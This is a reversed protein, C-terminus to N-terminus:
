LWRHFLLFFLYIFIPLQVVNKVATVTVCVFGWVCVHKWAWESVGDIFKLKLKWDTNYQISPKLYGTHNMLALPYFNTRDGNGWASLGRKYWVRKCRWVAGEMQKCRWTIAVGKEEIIWFLTVLLLTM